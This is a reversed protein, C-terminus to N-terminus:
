VSKFIDSNNDRIGVYGDNSVHTVIYGDSYVRRVINGDHSVCVLIAMM